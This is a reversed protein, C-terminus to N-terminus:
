KPLIRVISVSNTEHRVWFRHLIMELKIQHFLKELLHQFSDRLLSKTFNDIESSESLEEVM